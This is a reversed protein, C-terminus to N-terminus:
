KASRTVVHAFYERMGFMHGNLVLGRQTNRRMPRFKERRASSGDARRGRIEPRLDNRGKRLCEDYQGHTIGLSPPTTCAFRDVIHACGVMRFFPYGHHLCDKGRAPDRINLITLRGDRGELCVVRPYPFGHRSIAEQDPLRGIPPRRQAVGQMQRDRSFWKRVGIRLGLPLRSVSAGGSNLPSLTANVLSSTWPVSPKHLNYLRQRVV